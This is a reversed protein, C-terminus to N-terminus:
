HALPGGSGPMLRELSVAANGKLAREVHEIQDILSSARIMSQMVTGRRRTLQAELEGIRRELKEAHHAHELTLASGPSAQLALRIDRSLGELATAIAEYAAAQVYARVLDAAIGQYRSLSALNLVRLLPVSSLGSLLVLEEDSVISADRGSIAALYHAAALQMRGVLSAEGLEVTSPSLCKGAEDCSLRVKAAASETEDFLVPLLDVGAIERPALVTDAGSGSKRFITTGLMTMMIERMSQSNDSFKGAKLLAWTLNIEPADLVNGNSDKRVPASSVAKAGNDRVLRDAESQDSASGDARLKNKAAQVVRAIHSSAGTDELLAQAAQCSDSYRNTYARILDAYRGVMENLDPAMTQLALQFALGPLATGVSRLFSVFEERSPISFAGLFMDIGGCGAKLSPPSVSFPTFDRRKAHYVFGGATMTTLSESEIIGAPTVNAGTRAEDIFDSVFGAHANLSLASLAAILAAHPRLRLRNM